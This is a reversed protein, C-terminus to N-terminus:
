DEGENSFDGMSDADSLSDGDFVTSDSDRNEDFDGYAREELSDIIRQAESIQPFHNNSGGIKRGIKRSPPPPNPDLTRLIKAQPARFERVFDGVSLM